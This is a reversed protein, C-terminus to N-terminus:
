ILRLFTMKWSPNNSAGELLGLFWRIALLGSFNKVFGTCITVFGWLMVLGPLWRKTSTTLKPLGSLWGVNCECETQVEQCAL